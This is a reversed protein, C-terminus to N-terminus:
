LERNAQTACAMQVPAPGIKYGGKAFIHLKRKLPDAPVPLDLEVVRGQLYFKQFARPEPASLSGPFSRTVPDLM